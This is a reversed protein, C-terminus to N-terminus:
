EAVEWPPPVDSIPYSTWLIVEGTDPTPNPEECSPETAGENM